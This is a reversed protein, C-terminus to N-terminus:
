RLILTRVCVPPKRLTLQYGAFTGIDSTDTNSCTHQLMRTFWASLTCGHHLGGCWRFPILSWPLSVFEYAFGLLGCFYYKCAWTRIQGRALKFVLWRISTFPLLFQTTPVCSFYTHYWTSTVRSSRHLLASDLCLCLLKSWLHSNWSIRLWVRYVYIFALIRASFPKQYCSLANPTLRQKSTQLMWRAM